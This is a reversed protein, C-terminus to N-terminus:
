DITIAPKDSLYRIKMTVDKSASKKIARLGLIGLFQM